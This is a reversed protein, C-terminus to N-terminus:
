RCALERASSVARTFDRWYRLPSFRSMALNRAREAMHQRLAEDRLLTDVAEALKEVDGPPVLLGTEGHLVVEPLGEVATAVVARGAASAEAAAIGFSEEYSPHVYLDCAALWQVVNKQFGPMLVRATLHYQRALQELEHRLDGEGLLVAILHPYSKALHAITRVLLVQGKRQTLTGITLIVQANLPLGLQRRATRQDPMQALETTRVCNPIVHVRDATCGYHRVTLEFIARSNVIVAAARRAFRAAVAPVPWPGEFRGGPHGHVHYVLVTSRPIKAMTAVVASHGLHVYLCDPRLEAVLHTLTRAARLYALVGAARGAFRRRGAIGIISTGNDPPDFAAVDLLTVVQHSIGAQEASATLDILLREAGGGALSNILSVVKVPAGDSSTVQAVAVGQGFM